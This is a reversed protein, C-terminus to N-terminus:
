DEKLGIMVQELQEQNLHTYKESVKRSIGDPFVFDDIIKGKIELRKNDMSEAYRFYLKYLEWLLVPVVGGFVFYLLEM